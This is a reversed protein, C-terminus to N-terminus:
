HARYYIYADTIRDTDLRRSATRFLSLPLVCALFQANLTIIKVMKTGVAVANVVGALHSITGAVLFTYWM